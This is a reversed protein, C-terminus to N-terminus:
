EVERERERERDRKRRKLLRDITQERETHKESSGTGKHGYLYRDGSYKWRTVCACGRNEQRHITLPLSPILRLTHVQFDSDLEVDLQRETTKLYKCKRDIWKTLNLRYMKAYNLVSRWIWDVRKIRYLNLVNRWVWDTCKICLDYNSITILKTQHIEVIARLYFHSRQLSYTQLSNM